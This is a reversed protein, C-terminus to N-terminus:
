QIQKKADWTTNTLGDSATVSGNITQSGNQAVTGKYFGTIGNPYNITFDINNGSLQGNITGNLHSDWIANGTLQGFQDLRFNLIGKNGNYQTVQWKGEISTNAGDCDEFFQQLYESIFDIRETWYLQRLKIWSDYEINLRTVVKSIAVQTFKDVISEEASEIADRKQLRLGHIEADRRQEFNRVYTEERQRLEECTLDDLSQAHASFNLAITVAVLFIISFSKKM